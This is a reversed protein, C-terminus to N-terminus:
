TSVHRTIGEALKITRLKIVRRANKEKKTQPAPRPADEMCYGFSWLATPPGVTETRKWDSIYVLNEPKRHLNRLYGDITLRRVGTLEAIQAASYRYKCLLALMKKVPLLFTNVRPVGAM